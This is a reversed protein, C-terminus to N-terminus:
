TPESSFPFRREAFQEIALILNTMRRKSNHSLLKRCLFLLFIARHVLVDFIGTAYAFGFITAFGISSVRREGAFTLLRSLFDCVIFDFDRLRACARFPYGAPLV